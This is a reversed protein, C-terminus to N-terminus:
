FYDCGGYLKQQLIAQILYSYTHGSFDDKWDERNYLQFQTLFNM